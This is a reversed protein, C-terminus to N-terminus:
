RFLVKGSVNRGSVDQIQYYYIGAPIGNRNFHTLSNDIGNFTRVQRGYADYLTLSAKQVSPPLKLSFSEEVPNPFLQVGELTNIPFDTGTTVGDTSLLYMMVMVMMEDASTAGWSVPNPGDNVWTAEHIIGNLPSFNVERLPEFYRMPIHQYDFYPSVCGPVGNACAADYILEGTVGGPLREFVKYGTGYKHVHGMVGWVYLDGFNSNVTQTHTVENGTNPIYINSNVILATHMEQAATGAPKTYVNIYAEAQYTNAGAYNITHTNLDLVLNQDWIFASGNPLVLDTSEQLAAVLSIESHDAENRLGHPISSDGGQNFNYIIFNHSFSPIIVEIRDVDVDEPLELEYKQFYEVEEGPEIYFPGVKMQFGESAEPAEPPGDPFGAMGNTNYYDHILAEDVVQGNEPAGFLVWQRILEKEETTLQEQAGYAPMQQNEGAELIIGPELGGNIKRFLFSKDARGPYIRKYNKESAFDNAPSAMFLKDYVDAKKQADTTGDGELDLMGQQDMNNHCQLCKQQFVEYVRDYTSQANLLASFILLFFSTTIVNKM